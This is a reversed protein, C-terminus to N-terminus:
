ICEDGFVRRIETEDTLFDSLAAQISQQFTKRTPCNIYDGSQLIQYKQADSFDLYETIPFRGHYEGHKDIRRVLRQSFIGIVSPILDELNLGLDTLRRIAEIPRSAHLTTLVLRGTLAARLASAATAEDRIEGILLVDPDQRLISKVGDSFSLMGEEKLDLQKIGQMLYEVPDELTMINILPTNIENLLSYLTTTKGSGTPGVIIFIGSPKNIVHKLWNYDDRCFGLTSLNKIGNNPDFIRIVFNEGHVGPHTSVRLDISNGCLFLQMHGSQPRRTETINLNSALKLKSQMRSWVDFQINCLIQLLGDIRIRVRVFNETPEFHIDSAGNEIAQFIIKNLLRSPSADLDNHGCKMFEIQKLIERKKSVFFSLKKGPFLNFLTDIAHIDGPDAIAIKVENDNLEFPIALIQEAIQYDIASLTKPDIYLFDLSIIDIHYLHSLFKILDADSLVGIDVACQGFLEYNRSQALLVTSVQEKTLIGQKIFMEGTKQGVIEEM